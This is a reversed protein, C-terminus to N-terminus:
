VWLSMILPDRACALLWCLGHQRTIQKPLNIISGSWLKTRIKNRRGIKKHRKTFDSVRSKVFICGAWGLIVLDM